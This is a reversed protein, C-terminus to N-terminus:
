KVVLDFKPRRHTQIPYVKLCGNLSSFWVILRRKIIKLDGSGFLSSMFITFLWCTLFHLAKIHENFGTWGKRLNAPTQKKIQIKGKQRAIDKSCKCYNHVQTIVIHKNCKSLTGLKSGFM